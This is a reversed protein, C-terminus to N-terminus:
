EDTMSGTQHMQTYFEEMEEGTFKQTLYPILQPMSSLIRTAQEPIHAFRDQGREPGAVRPRFGGERTDRLQDLYGYIIAKANINLPDASTKNFPLPGKAVISVTLRQTRDVRLRFPIPNLFSGFAYRKVPNPDAAAVIDQWEALTEGDRRVRITFIEGVDLAEGLEYGVGQILLMRTDPVEYTVLPYETEYFALCDEGPQHVSQAWVGPCQYPPCVREGFLPFFPPRRPPLHKKTPIEPQRAKSPFESSPRRPAPTYFTWMERDVDMNKDQPLPRVTGEEMQRDPLNQDGPRPVICPVGTWLNKDVDMSKKRPLPQPVFTPIDRYRNSM